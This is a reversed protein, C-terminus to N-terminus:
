GASLDTTNNSIDGAGANSYDVNAITTRGVPVGIGTTWQRLAIATGAATGRVAIPDTILIQGPKVVLDVGQTGDSLVGIRARKYANPGSQTVAAAFSPEITAHVLFACGEWDPTFTAGTGSGTTSVQSLSTAATTYFGNDVMEVLTIAGSSVALVRVKAATPNGATTTIVEGAVYGSGAANIAVRRVRFANTPSVREAVPVLDFGSYGLQISTPAGYIYHKTRSGWAPTGSTSVTGNYALGTRTGVIQLQTATTTLAAKNQVALGRAAVDIGAHAPMGFLQALALLGAVILRMNM